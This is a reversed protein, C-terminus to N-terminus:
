PMKLVGKYNLAISHDECFMVMDSLRLRGIYTCDVNKELLSFIDSM